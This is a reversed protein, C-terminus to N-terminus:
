NNSNFYKLLKVTNVALIYENKYQLAIDPSTYQNFYLKIHSVFNM